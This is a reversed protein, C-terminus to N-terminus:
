SYKVYPKYTNGHRIEAGFTVQGLETPENSVAMLGFTLSFNKM